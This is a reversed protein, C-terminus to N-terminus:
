DLFNKLKEASNFGVQRKIEEDDAVIIFTPVRDVNYKRRMPIAIDFNYELVEYSDVIRRLAVNEQMAKKAAKCPGCWDASFIILKAKNPQESVLFEIRNPERGFGLLTYASVYLTFAALFVYYKM